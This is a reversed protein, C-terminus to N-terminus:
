GDIEIIKWDSMQFIIFAMIEMIPEVHQVLRYSFMLVLRKKEQNREKNGLLIM